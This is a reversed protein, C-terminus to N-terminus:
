LWLAGLYEKISMSSMPCPAPPPPPMSPPIIEIPPPPPIEPRISIRAFTNILTPLSFGVYFAGWLTTVPLINAVFGGLFFFLLSIVYYFVPFVLRKRRLKYLRIIEPAAAGIRGTLFIWISFEM